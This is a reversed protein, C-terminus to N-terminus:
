GRQPDFYIRRILKGFRPPIRYSELTPQTVMRSSASAAVTRLQVRGQFLKELQVATLVLSIEGEREAYSDHGEEKLMKQLRARNSEHPARLEVFVTYTEPWSEAASLIVPVLLM